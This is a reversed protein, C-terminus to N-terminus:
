PAAALRGHRIRHGIPVSPLASSCGFDAQRLLPLSVSRHRRQPWLSLASRCLQSHRRGDAAASGCAADATPSPDEVRRAGIGWLEETWPCCTQWLAPILLARLGFPGPADQRVESQAWLARSCRSGARAGGRRLGGRPRSCIYLPQRVVRAGTTLAAEKRVQGPQRHDRGGGAEFRFIADSRSHPLGRAPRSPRRPPPALGPDPPM